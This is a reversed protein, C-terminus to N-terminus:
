DGKELCLTSEDIVQQKKQVTLLNSTNTLSDSGSNWSFGAILKRVCDNKWNTKTSKGTAQTFNAPKVETPGFKNREVVARVLM